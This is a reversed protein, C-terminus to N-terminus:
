IRRGKGSALDWELIERKAGDQLYFKHPDAINWFAWGGLKVGTPKWGSGDPAVLWFYSRDLGPRMSILLMQSGDCNWAPVNSYAHSNFGPNRSLKWIESGTATDRFVLRESPFEGSASQVLDFPKIMRRSALEALRHIPDGAGIEQFAA